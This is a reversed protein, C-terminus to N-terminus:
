KSIWLHVTSGAKFKHPWHLWCYWDVNSDSRCNTCILNQQIQIESQLPTGQGVLDLM